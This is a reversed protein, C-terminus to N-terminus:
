NLKEWGVSACLYKVGDLEVVDGVSMSSHWVRDEDPTDFVDYGKGLRRLWDGLGVPARFDRDVWNFFRFADSLVDNHDDGDKAEFGYLTPDKIEMHTHNMGGLVPAPASKGKGPFQADRMYAATAYFVKVKM